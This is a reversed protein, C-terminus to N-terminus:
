WYRDDYILGMLIDTYDWTGKWVDINSKYITGWILFDWTQYPWIVHFIGMFDGYGEMLFVNFGMFDGHFWRLIVMFDGHFGM